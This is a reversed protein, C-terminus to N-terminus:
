FVLRCTLIQAQLQIGSHESHLGFRLYDPISGHFVDLQRNYDLVNSLVDQIPIYTLSSTPAQATVPENYFVTLIKDLIDYLKTSYVFLGLRSPVDPPQSPENSRHLYEEDVLVPTPVDWSRTIMAPRGFTM